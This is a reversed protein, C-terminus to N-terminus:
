LIYLFIVIFCLFSSNQYSINFAVGLVLKVNALSLWAGAPSLYSNNESEGDYIHSCMRSIHSCMGSVHSCIGSIHSCMEYTAAGGLYTAAGGM